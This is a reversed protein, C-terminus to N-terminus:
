VKPLLHKSEAQDFTPHLLTNLAKPEVMLVAEEKTRLGQWILPGEFRSLAEIVTQLMYLKGANLRLNWTKCIATINKM